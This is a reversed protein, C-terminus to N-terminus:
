SDVESEWHWRLPKPLGDIPAFEFHLIRRGYSCAESSEKSGHLLRPRMLMLDGASAALTRVQDPEPTGERQTHSGPVVYLAGNQDDMVDLHLRLTLMRDLLEPSAVIHFVGAKTTPRSYGNPMQDAAPHQAIAITEDRHLPLAWSRGPPKDFFLIRVLQLTGAVNDPLLKLLRNALDLSAPWVAILNRVGVVQKSGKIVSGESSRDIAKQLEEGIQMIGNRDVAERFWAYGNQQLDVWLSEM